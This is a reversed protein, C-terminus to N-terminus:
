HARLEVALRDLGQWIQEDTKNIGAQEAKARAVDLYRNASVLDGRIQAIRARCGSMVGSKEAKERGALVADLEGLAKKVSADTSGKLAPVAQVLWNEYIGFWLQKEEKGPDTAVIMWRATTVGLTLDSAPPPPQSGADPGLFGMGRKGAERIVRRVEAVMAPDLQNFFPPKPDSTRGLLMLGRDVVDQGAEKRGYDEHFLSPVSAYVLILAWQWEELTPATRDHVLELGLRAKDIPKAGKKVGYALLTRALLRCIEEPRNKEGPELTPLKEILASAEKTDGSVILFCIEMLKHISEPGKMAGAIARITADYHKSRANDNAVTLLTPADPNDPDASVAASLRAIAVADERTHELWFDREFDKGRVTRVIARYADPLDKWPYPPKVDHANKAMRDSAADLTNRVEVSLRRAEELGPDPKAPGAPVSPPPTPEIAHITGSPRTYFWAGVAVLVLAAVMGGVVLGASPGPKPPPVVRIPRSMKRSNKSIPADSDSM